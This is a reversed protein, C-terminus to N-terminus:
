TRLLCTANPESQPGVEVDKHVRHWAPDVGSEELWVWHQDEVEQAAQQAEDAGQALHAGTAAVSSQM